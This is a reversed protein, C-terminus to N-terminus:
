LSIYWWQCSSKCYLYNRWRCHTYMNCYVVICYVVICYLVICYL